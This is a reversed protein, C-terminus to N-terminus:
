KEARYHSVGHITINSEQTRQPPTYRYEEGIHKIVKAKYPKSFIASLIDYCFLAFGIWFLTTLSIIIM